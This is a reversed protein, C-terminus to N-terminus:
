RFNFPLIEKLITVPDSPEHLWRKLADIRQSTNPLNARFTAIEEHANPWTDGWSHAIARCCAGILQVTPGQNVAFALDAGNRVLDRATDPSQGRLLIGRYCEIIPWPHGTGSQWDAQEKLYSEIKTQDPRHVMWRLLVHHKYRNSAHGSKALECIAQDIPGVVSEVAKLVEADGVSQDDMMAIARYIGTQECDKASVEADSLRAFASLAGDFFNVASRNDGQFAAHQGLSSRVQAWYRLGPVATPQAEWRKLATSAGEFDFRNTCAVARHLDAHCVLPASEELLRDSIDALESEWAAETQGHHNANALKVTLWLLRLSLPMSVAEPQHVQLWDVAAALRNLDVPGLAMHQRVEMLSTRWRQADSAMEAGVSSLLAHVLSSPEHNEVATVLQWWVSPSIDLGQAALDWAAILGGGNRELLCTDLWGSTRLRDKSEPVPSGWTFAVADAYGNWDCGNKSVVVIELDIEAARLPFALALRRLSDRAMTAWHQDAVAVGRNEVMVEIRTPGDVPLLRLIWDIVALVGDNWREGPVIPLSTVEIGFVGVPADLIAQAVRDIEAPDLCDAAHWGPLKSLPAPNTPVAVAVFRGRRRSSSTAADPGFDDGSEDIAIQWCTSPPQVRLDNPHLPLDPNEPKAKRLLLSSTPLGTRHIKRAPLCMQGLPKGARRAQEGAQSRCHNAAGKKISYEIDDVLTRDRELVRKSEGVGVFAGAPALTFNRKSVTKLLARGAPTGYGEQLGIAYGLKKFDADAQGEAIAAAIEADHGSYSANFATRVEDLMRRGDDGSWAAYKRIDTLLAYAEDDLPAPEDPVSPEIESHEASSDEALAASSNEIEAMGHPSDSPSIERNASVGLLALM